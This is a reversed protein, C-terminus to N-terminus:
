LKISYLKNKLFSILGLIGDPYDREIIKKHKNMNPIVFIEPTLNEEGNHSYLDLIEFLTEKFEEGFTSIYDINNNIFKKVRDSRTIIPTNFALHSIIDLGDVENNNQLKRVFDFDIKKERLKDLFQEKKLDDQWISIM